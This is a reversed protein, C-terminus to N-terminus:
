WRKNVHWRVAMDVGGGKITQGGGSQRREYRVVECKCAYFLPEFM